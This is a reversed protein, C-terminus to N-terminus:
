QMKGGWAASAEARAEARRQQSHCDRCLHKHVQGIYPLQFGCHGSGCSECQARCWLVTAETYPVGNSDYAVQPTPTLTPLHVLQRLIQRRPPWSSSQALIMIHSDGGVELGAQRLHLWVLGFWFDSQFGPRRYSGLLIRFYM